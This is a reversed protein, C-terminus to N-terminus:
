AADDNSDRPSPASIENQAAQTKLRRLMRKAPYWVLALVALGISLVFGLIVGLAGLGLGPGMYAQAEGATLLFVSLTLIILWRM